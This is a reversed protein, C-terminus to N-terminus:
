VGDCSGALAEELAARCKILSKEPDKKLPRSARKSAWWANKAGCPGLGSENSPLAVALFLM